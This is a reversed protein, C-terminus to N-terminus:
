VLGGALRVEAHRFTPRDTQRHTQNVCSYASTNRHLVKTIYVLFATQLSTSMSGKQPLKHYKFTHFIHQDHTHTHTHTNSWTPPLMGREPGTLVASYRVLARIDCGTETAVGGVKSDEHVVKFGLYRM